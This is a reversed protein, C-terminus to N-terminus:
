LPDLFAKVKQVYDKSKRKNYVNILRTYIFQMAERDLTEPKGLRQVFDMIPSDGYVYIFMDRLWQLFLRMEETIIPKRYQDDLGM